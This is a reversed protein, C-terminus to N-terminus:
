EVREERQKITSEAVYRWDYGSPAQFIRLGFIHAVAFIHDFIDSQIDEYEGWVTTNTFCYVELPVGEATAAMQRVMITMNKHIRPHQKLYAMIYARFTGINTLHRQDLFRALGETSVEKNHESIEKSKAVLYQTLRRSGSMKHLEEENIFRITNIDICVQRKIRRGGSEQMGRWNKFSDSILASTPITTVTKDFNQVKVTTLGIEVVDGDANYKPMELWDGVKLMNNASLQIGAVFGMIPSQFVLMLVATMAGFGSIVIGPSQGLLVSVILVITIVTIVLKFTQQFGQIPLADLKHNRRALRGLVDIFSAISLAAFILLLVRAIIEILRRLDDGPEFLLESVARFVMIVTTVYLYHLTKSQGLIPFFSGKTKQLFRRFIRDVLTKAAFYYTITITLVCLLFVIKVVLANDALGVSELVGLISNRM